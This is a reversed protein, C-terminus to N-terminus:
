NRFICIIGIIIIATGLLKYIGMSEGLLFYSLMLVMVFTLAIFPYVYSLEKQSLAILWFLAGIGYCILGAIVYINFGINLLSLNLESIPGIQNMGIKWLLQGMSAFILGTIIIVIVNM